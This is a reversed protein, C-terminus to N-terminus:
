KQYLRFGYGDPIPECTFNYLVKNKITGINLNNCINIIEKEQEPTFPKLNNKPRIYIHGTNKVHNIKIPLNNFDSETITHIPHLEM